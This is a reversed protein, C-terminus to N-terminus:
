NSKSIILKYYYFVNVYVLMLQIKVIYPNVYCLNDGTYICHQIQFFYLASGSLICHQGQYFVTSVRTFYPALGPLIFQNFKIVSQKPLIHHLMM